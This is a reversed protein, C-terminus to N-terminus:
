DNELIKYKWIFGKATKQRSNPNAAACISGQSCGMSRAAEIGSGFEM